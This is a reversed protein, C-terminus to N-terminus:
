RQVISSDLVEEAPVQSLICYFHLIRKYNVREQKLTIVRKKVSLSFLTGFHHVRPVKAVFPVRKEFPCEKKWTIIMNVRLPVM